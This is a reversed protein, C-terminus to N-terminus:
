RYRIEAHKRETVDVLFGQWHLPRGREDRVTVARDRVWVIAGDNRFVRYEAEYPDGARKAADIAALVDDRDLPHLIEDFLQPKRAWEDLPYGLLTVIAPSVYLANSTEDLSSIYLAAPLGEVLTRYRREVSETRRRQRAQGVSHLGLGASLTVVMALELQNALLGATFGSVGIAAHAIALRGMRLMRLRGALFHLM